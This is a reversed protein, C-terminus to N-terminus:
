RTTYCFCGKVRIRGPTNTAQSSAAMKGFTEMVMGFTVGDKSHLSVSCRRERPDKDEGCSYLAITSIPPQTLYMQQFISPIRKADRYFDQLFVLNHLRMAPQYKSAYHEFRGKISFLSHGYSEFLPMIDFAKRELRPLCPVGFRGIPRGAAAHDIRNITNGHARLFVARQLACSKAILSSWSKAIARAKLIYRPTLHLLVNELLEPTRLVATHPALNDSM